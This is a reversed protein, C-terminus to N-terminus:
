SDERTELSKRLIDLPYFNKPLRPNKYTTKDLILTTPM